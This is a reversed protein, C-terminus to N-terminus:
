GREAGAGAFLREEGPVRGLRNILVMGVTSMGAGIAVVVLGLSSQYFDRFQTGRACMIILIVYPLVFVARANLRQELQATEIRETLQLDLTTARALDGLIDMVIAAGQETALILVEVVRDSVPDALEERIVELAARQDLTASLRAYRAFVPRLAVPGTFGLAVLAQHLSLSASLSASLSRLADPWARTQEGARKARERAYYARPLLAVAVGPLLAVAVTGTLAFVAVFAVAGVAVSTAWFQRVTVRAGAQNLWGQRSLKLPRHRPPSRFRLRAPTYGTLYGVGLYVFVAASLAALFTV